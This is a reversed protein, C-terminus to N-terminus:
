RRGWTVAHTIAAPLGAVLESDPIAGLADNVTSFAIRMAIFVTVAMIQAEDFGADRLAQVDAATTSNPDRAIARAWAALVQEPPALASDDGVLVGAALEADAAKTLKGGWALSCYSDGLTSATAAVLIGRTRVDLRGLKVCQSLLDFLGDLTAPMHGWLRSANMVYGLEDLDSQRLQEAEASAPAVALFHGSVEGPDRPRRM